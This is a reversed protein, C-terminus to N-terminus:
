RNILEQLHPELKAILGAENEFSGGSKATIVVLPPPKVKRKTAKDQKLAKNPKLPKPIRIKPPPTRKAKPYFFIGRYVRETDVGFWLVYFIYVVLPIFFMNEYAFWASGLTVVTKLFKSSRIIEVIVSLIISLFWLGIFALNIPLWLIRVIWGIFFLRGTERWYVTLVLFIMTSIIVADAHQSLVSKVLFLIQEMMM